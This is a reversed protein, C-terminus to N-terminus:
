RRGHGRGNPPPKTGGRNPNGSLRMATNVLSLGAIAPAVWGAKLVDRRTVTTKRVEPTAQAQQNNKKTM